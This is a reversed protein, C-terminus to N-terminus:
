KVELGVPTVDARRAPNYYEYVTSKPTQAKLPYKAKLRYSFSVVQGGELKELYCIIQRGTLSYKQLTGKEVLNAIDESQVEFGPPLGLDVIIMSTAGPLNNRVSVKATVMDDKALTTRDYDLKIDLAPKGPAVVKDWPLYHRGVIQYLTSGKGEFKLTVENRGPKLWKKGEVQRMVDANEPTLGFAEAPQGNVLVTVEGNVMQTSNKQSAMLARLALVTAQTSYWTGSPDKASILYNLVETAENSRQAAILALAAMGTAELDSSQGSSHTIGTMESEWWMKGDARKATKLLRDLVANTAASLDGKDLLLDSQVLANALMSLVYPDKAEEAHARLYDRAKTVKADQCGTYALAWTLYATPPLASNQIRGWSEQHLYAKDAQWSGDGQQQDLLWRQTRALLAPDIEHVRAMDSFEMIGFATLIKNAPADGFWSFGGGKVEFTVLRQYGSNIFGEAKMQIEPTIHNTAKMYDLVLVNPYTTSSTQEFCGFPMRLISDLGEVVQSFIGPYVKILLNSAGALAEAPFTVTQTVTGQLRGSVTSEVLKGNPELDVAREIADSMRSGYGHVLLKGTGLGKATITFYRVDVQNPALELEQTDPGTLSFWDAQTLVLKVTQATPLYNYVAVPVAVQDGQTLAVPLDLDVFFDQFCRLNGTISGLGGSQSNALATLRWSTISDAMPVALTAQGKEDTILSPEVLLTEPFFQRVRVPKVEPAGAGGMGGPMGPMGPGEAAARAGKFIAGPPAAMGVGDAAMAMPLPRRQVAEELSNAFTEGWAPVVYFDDETDKTQDPGLSWVVVTWLPDQDPSLPALGLPTGWQDKLDEPTLKGATVLPALLTQATLRPQANRNNWENIARQIKELKPQLARAWEEKAAALRPAYTDESFTNVQPPQVSAFMVRAAQQKVPDESFPVPRGDVPPPGAVIVPLEFGHIEYRPTALEKELYFYVKEMGPQMEQIAFLSEDVVNIGLAAAVPQGKADTVAFHVQAVNDPGPRYTDHDSHLAIHLDNAPNVFLPRTARVIDGGPLIRYASLWVTGSLEPTLTLPTTAQGDKLDAAATLMTQRDKVLDFYITGRTANSYATATITDGVQALVRDTRLLLASDASGGGATVTLPQTVSTGDDAAAEATLALPTGQDSAPGPRGPMIGMPGFRGGRRPAPAAAPETLPTATVRVVAIGLEDTVLDAPSNLQVKWTEVPMFNVHVKARVPEGTPRSVLFYVLNEVGPILRGSEPVAHVELPAGAVRSSTLAVETHEAQDQVSTELQLFAKGQELPQGVFNDPLKTEFKWGGQADTTGTLVAIDKFAVDFTKVSVKVTGEAVPKGFFYDAQVTGHLREGPLYYPKDTTVTVRFKPLVYRKVTVNKEVRQDGVLARVTYDGMNVEDALTFPTFVLGFANTKRTQKFVKNGKADSVELTVPQDAAPLLAPRRLVLARLHMTQGPKYLPKDTTLLVQSEVRVRVDQSVEETLGNVRARVTLRYGGAEMAPVKFACDLTGTAPTRGSYVAHRTAGDPSELYVYVRAGSVPQRAQHDTVTVRLAVTSDALFDRPGVVQLGLPSVADTAARAPPLSALLLAGVSAFVALLLTTPSTPCSVM